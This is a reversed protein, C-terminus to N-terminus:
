YSSTCKGWKNSKYNYTKIELLVLINWYLIIKISQPKNGHIFYIYIVVSEINQHVNRVRFGILQILMDFYSTM